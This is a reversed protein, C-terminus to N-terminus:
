RITEKRHPPRWRHGNRLPRVDARRAPHLHGPRHDPYRGGLARILPAAPLVEGVSVAHVWISSRLKPFGFGFRQGLDNFHDRNGIGRVVWYVFIPILLVYTLLNYLFRM